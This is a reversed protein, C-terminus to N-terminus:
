TNGFRYAKKKKAKKQPVYVVNDLLINICHFESPGLVPGM